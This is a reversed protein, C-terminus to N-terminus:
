GPGREDRAARGQDGLQNRGLLPDSALRKEGKPKPAHASRQARQHRPEETLDQAQGRKKHHEPGPM